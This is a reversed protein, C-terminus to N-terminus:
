QEEVADYYKEVNEDVRAEFGGTERSTEPGVTENLAQVPEGQNSDTGELAFEGLLNLVPQFDDERSEAEAGSVAPSQLQFYELMAAYGANLPLLYTRPLIEWVPDVLPLHVHRLRSGSDAGDGAAASPTLEAFCCAVRLGTADEGRKLKIFASRSNEEKGISAINKRFESQMEAIKNFDDENGETWFHRRATSTRNRSKQEASFVAWQALGTKFHPTGILILRCTRGIFNTPKM